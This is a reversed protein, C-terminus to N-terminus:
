FPATRVPCIGGAAVLEFERWTKLWLILLAYEQSVPFRHTFYSSQLHLPFATIRWLFCYDSCQSRSRKVGVGM